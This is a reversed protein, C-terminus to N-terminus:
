AAPPAVKVMRIASNYFHKVSRGSLRAAQRCDEFEPAVTEGALTVRIEQGDISVSVVQRDVPHRHVAHWRVGLTSTEAILAECVSHRAAQRCLIRVLIGMRGKKMIGQIQMVDLVGEILRIQECAHAIQEPNQDDINAEIMDLIEISAEDTQGSPDALTDGIFLRLVNPREGDNRSGAGYGTKHVIMSPQPGFESVFTRILAAGTPTVREGPLNGSTIPIGKLIEATAPAPVPYDGHAIRVIGSGLELPSAVIREIKLAHIGFAVGLIDVVTDMASVEHLHVQNIAVGHIRSEAAVIYDFAELAKGIIWPDLGCNKFIARIGEVNGTDTVGHGHGHEHEHENEHEHGHHEHGHGHGHEYEHEHHEHEHSWEEAVDVKMARIGKRDVWHLGLQNRHLPTRSLAELLREHELGAAILAGLFMDGSVGSFCDLYAIKM